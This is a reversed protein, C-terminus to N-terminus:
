KARFDDLNRWIFRLCTLKIRNVHLTTQM